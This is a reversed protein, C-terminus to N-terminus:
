FAFRTQRHYMQGAKLMVPPFHPFHVADPYDQTELCLGSFRQYREGRKGTLSGDLYNGSYVQVGPQDSEVRMTLQGDASTLQAVPGFVGAPKSLVFNHNFGSGKKMQEDEAGVRQGIRVGKRCDFPTGEVPLIQGTSACADDIQTFADAYVTLTEDLITGDHRGELNFYSHHTLNVITDRDSVATYDIRLARESLSYTIRTDLTGPYGGAGDPSVCRLTVFDEGAAEVSFPTNWFGRSGGHLHNEGENAELMYTKEGIAFSAGSIRNACRGIVTGIYYGQDVYDKWDSFGLVVDRYAGAADLARLSQIVGGFSLIAASLRQNELVIREVACSGIMGLRERKM